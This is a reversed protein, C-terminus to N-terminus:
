KAVLVVNDYRVRWDTTTGSVSRDGLVIGITGRSAPPVLQKSAAAKNDIRVTATASPSKIAVSIEIERFSNDEELGPTLRATSTSPAGPGSTTEELVTGAKRGVALRLSYATGLTIQAIGHVSADDGNGIAEMRVALRLVFTEPTLKTSTSLEAGVTNGGPTAPFTMLLSAPASVAALSDLAFTADGLKVVGWKSLTMGDFDDCFTAAAVCPSTPGGGDADTGADRPPEKGPPSADANGADTTATPVPADGGSLDLDAAGTLLNCAALGSVAFVAAGLRLAHASSGMGEM